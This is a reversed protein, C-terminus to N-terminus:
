VSERVRWTQISRYFNTSKHWKRRIKIEGRKSYYSRMSCRSLKRTSQHFKIFPFTDSIQQTM